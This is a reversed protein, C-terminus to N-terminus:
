GRLPHRLVELLRRVDPDSALGSRTWALHAIAVAAGLGLVVVFTSITWLALGRPDPLAPLLPQGIVTIAPTDRASEVAAQGVARLMELYGQRRLGVESELEELRIRLQPSSTFPGRNAVLFDRMAAQSERLQALLERSREEVFAHETGAQRTRSAQNLSDLLSLMLLNIRM